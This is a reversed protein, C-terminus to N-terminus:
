FLTNLKSDSFIQINIFKCSKPSYPFVVENTILTIQLNTEEEQRRNETESLVNFDM